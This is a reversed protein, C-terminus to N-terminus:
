VAYKTNCVSCGGGQTPESEHSPSLLRLLPSTCSCFYIYYVFYFFYFGSSPFTCMHVHQHLHLLHLLLLLLRLPPSIYLQVQLSIYHLHLLISTSTQPPPPILGKQRLGHGIPRLQRAHSCLKVPSKSLRLMLYLVNIGMVQPYIMNGRKPFVLM